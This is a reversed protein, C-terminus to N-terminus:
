DIHKCHVIYTSVSKEFIPFCLLDSTSAQKTRKLILASKEDAGPLTADLENRSQM